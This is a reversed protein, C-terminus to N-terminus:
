EPQRFEEDMLKKYELFVNVHANNGETLEWYHNVDRAWEPYAILMDDGRGSGLNSYSFEWYKSVRHDVIRFLPSPNWIPFYTCNDDWM